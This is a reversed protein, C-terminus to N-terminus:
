FFGFYGLILGSRSVMMEYVSSGPTIWRPSIKGKKVLYFLSSTGARPAEDIPIPPIGIIFSFLLLPLGSRNQILRNNLDVEHFNM